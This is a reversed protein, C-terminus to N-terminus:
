AKSKPAQESGSRSGRESSPPAEDSSSRSGRESSPPAKESSSRSGKEKKGGLISAIGIAVIGSPARRVAEVMRLKLAGAHGAKAVHDFRVKMQQGLHANKEASLARNVTPFLIGEEQNVHHQLLVKLAQLRSAFHEDAAPTARLRELVVVQAEHEEENHQVLERQLKETQPYFIEEEIVMHALLATALRESLEKRDAGPKELEDILAFAQRHQSELLSTAKM